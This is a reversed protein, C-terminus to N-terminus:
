IKNPKGTQRKLVDRSFLIMTFSPVRLRAIEELLPLTECACGAVCDAVFGTRHARGFSPDTCYKKLFKQTPSDPLFLDPIPILSKPDEGWVCGM